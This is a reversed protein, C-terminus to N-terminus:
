PPVLLKLKLHHRQLVKGIIILLLLFLKNICMIANSGDGSNRYYLADDCHFDLQSDISVIFTKTLTEIAAIFCESWFALQPSCPKNPKCKRM